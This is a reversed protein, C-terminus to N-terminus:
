TTKAVPCNFLLMGHKEAARAVVRKSDTHQAFVPLKGQMDAIIVHLPDFCPMSEDLQRNLVNKSNKTAMPTLMPTNTNKTSM